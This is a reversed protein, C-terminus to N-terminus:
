QKRVYEENMLLKMCLYLISYLLLINTLKTQPSNITLTVSLSPSSKHHFYFLFLCIKINLISKTHQKLTLTLFVIDKTECLRDEM